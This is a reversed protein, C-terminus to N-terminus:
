PVFNTAIPSCRMAKEGSSPVPLHTKRPNPPSRGDLRNGHPLLVLVKKVPETRQLGGFSMRAHGGQVSSRWDFSINHQTWCCADTALLCTLVRCQAYGSEACLLEDYHKRVSAPAAQQTLGHACPAAALCIAAWVIGRRARRFFFGFSIPHPHWGESNYRATVELRCLSSGDIQFQHLIGSSLLGTLFHWRKPQRRKFSRPGDRCSIEESRRTRGAEANFGTLCSM